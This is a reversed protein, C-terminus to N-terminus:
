IKKNCKEKMKSNLYQKFLMKVRFLLWEKFTAIPKRNTIILLIALLIITGYNSQNM